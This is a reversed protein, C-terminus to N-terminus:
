ICYKYLGFYMFYKEREKTYVLHLSKMIDLNPPPAKSGNYVKAAVKIGGHTKMVPM